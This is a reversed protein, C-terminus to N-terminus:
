RANSEDGAPGLIDAIRKLNMVDQRNYEVLLDLAGREGRQYRDWLLVADFGDLGRVEPPRLIGLREESAKLGGRIGRRHLITMLDIHGMGPLHTGRPPNFVDDPRAFERPPSSRYFTRLLIPLDFASGNYTVVIKIPEIFECFDWLDIDRIFVRYRDKFCVGVMTVATPDTEIDLFATEEQFEEYLRFRQHGPLRQSFFMADRERLKRLSIESASRVIPARKGLWSVDSALAAEWDAIGRRWLAVERKEGVGRIHLFTKRLM